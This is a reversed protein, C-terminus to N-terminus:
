SPKADNVYSGSYNLVIKSGTELLLFFTDEKLLYTTISSPKVDNTFSGTPKSDNTFSM